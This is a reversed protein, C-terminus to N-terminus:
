IKADPNVSGLPEWRQLLRQWALRALTKYNPLGLDDCIGASYLLWFTFKFQNDGYWSALKRIADFFGAAPLVGGVAHWVPATLATFFQWVLHTLSFEQIFRLALAVGFAAFANGVVLRFWQRSLHRAMVRVQTAANQHAENDSYHLLRTAAKAVFVVALLIAFQHHHFQTRLGDWVPSPEAEPLPKGALGPPLSPTMDHWLGGVIGLTVSGMIQVLFALAVSEWVCSWLIEAAKDFTLPAPGEPQQCSQPTPISDVAMTPRCQLEILATGRTYDTDIGIIPKPV